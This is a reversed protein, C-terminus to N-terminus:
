GISVYQSGRYILMVLVSGLPLMAIVSLVLALGSLAASFATRPHRLSRELSPLDVGSASPQQLADSAMLTRGEPGRVHPPHDLHRPYQRCAHYRAAGPRRVDTRRDRDQVGRSVQQGPAGGVYEVTFVGVLFHQQRQRGANGPGDDRGARSRL